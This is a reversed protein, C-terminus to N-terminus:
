SIVVFYYFMFIICFGDYRFSILCVLLFTLFDWSFTCFESVEGVRECVKSDWLLVVSFTITYIGLASKRLGPLQQKLRRSNMHTKSLQNLSSYWAKERPGGAVELDHCLSKNNTKFTWGLKPKPNLHCYFEKLM